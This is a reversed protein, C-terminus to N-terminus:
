GELLILFLLVFMMKLFGLYCRFTMKMLKRIGISPFRDARDPTECGKMWKKKAAKKRRRNIFISFKTPDTWSESGFSCWTWM